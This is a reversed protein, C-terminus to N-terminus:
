MTELLKKVSEDSPNIELYKEFYTKAKAKDKDSYYIGCYYNAAGIYSKYRAQNEPSDGVLEFLREANEIAEANPNNNNATILIYFKVAQLSVNSPAKEIAMNIYKLAEDCAEKREPSATDTIKRAKNWYNQAMIFYDNPTAQGTDLYDKMVQIAKDEQGANKYASSLNALYKPEDPNTEVLKQFYPLAQDYKKMATLSNGMVLYDNPVIYANPYNFLKEGAEVALSDQDLTAYNLMLIRYMTYSEPDEALVKKAWDISQQYEKASFLLGAYRAEDRRFHNPNKVYLEYQKWARGFQQAEYYQEALERQALGSNPELENLKELREIVLDRNIKDYVHAYKVYAERNVIGKAEAQQIALEYKGAAEGPDTSAVMDGELMPVAASQNKTEKNAKQILKDIDKKYKVPDVLWYARAVAVMVEDDKKNEKLVSDFIADAAKTDGKKLDVMARGIQNYVYSPNAQIGKDFNSQAGDLNNESFDIQGLYYYAVAKDTAPDNITNNLIVKAVDPRNANYNDVGDQYGGQAAATLTAGVMLSFLFRLKM